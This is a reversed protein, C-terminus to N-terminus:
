LLSPYAIAFFISRGQNCSFNQLFYFTIYDFFTLEFFVCINLSNNCNWCLKVTILALFGFFSALCSTQLNQTYNCLRHSSRNSSCGFHLKMFSYKNHINTTTGIVQTNQFCTFFSVISIKLSNCYTAVTM